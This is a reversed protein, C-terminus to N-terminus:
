DLLRGVAGNGHSASRGCRGAHLAAQRWRPLPVTVPEVSRFSIASPMEPHAMRATGPLARAPGAQWRRWRGRPRCPPSRVSRSLKAPPSSRAKGQVRTVGAPSRSLPMRSVSGTPRGPLERCGHGRDPERRHSVLNASGPRAPRPQLSAPCSRSGCFLRRFSRSGSRSDPFVTQDPFHRSM